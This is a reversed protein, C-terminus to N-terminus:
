KEFAVLAPRVYGFEPGWNSQRRFDIFFGDVGLALLERALGVKYQRVEDFAVSLRGPSAYGDAKEDWLGPHELAFRSLFCQLNHTDEWPWYLLCKMGKRHCIKAVAGVIDPQCVGYRVGGNHYLPDSTRRKDILQPYLGEELRSNHIVLGGGFGRFYISNAGAQRCYDIIEELGKPSVTDWSRGGGPTAFDQHDVWFGVEFREEEAAAGNAAFTGSLMAWAVLIFWGPMRLVLSQM